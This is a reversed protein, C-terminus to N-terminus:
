IDLNDLANLIFGNCLVFLQNNSLNFSKFAFIWFVDRTLDDYVALSQLTNLVIFGCSANTPELKVCLFSSDNAGLGDIVANVQHELTCNRCDSM